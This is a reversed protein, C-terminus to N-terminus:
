QGRVCDSATLLKERRQNKLFLHRPFDLLARARMGVHTVGRLSGRSGRGRDGSGNRLDRVRRLHPCLPGEPGQPPRTGQRPLFRVRGEGRLGESSPPPGDESCPPPPSEECGRSPAPTQPLRLLPRHKQRRRRDTPGLPRPPSGSNGFSSCRGYVKSVQRLIGQLDEPSRGLDPRGHPFAPPRDAPWDWM